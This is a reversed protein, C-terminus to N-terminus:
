QAVVPRTDAARALRHAHPDRILHLEQDFFRVARDTRGIYIIGTKRLDTRLVDRVQGLLSEDASDLAEDVLLWDPAQLLVRAFALGRQEDDNLERDWRRHDKLLPALADLGFRALAARCQADSYRGPDRPYALVECLTGPPLYPVRPVYVIDAHAPRIITGSGWPWLGALARFLLTESTGPEGSVLVHSGAPIDVRDEKLMTTGSPAAIKLKEIALRGAPGDALRIRSEQPHLAECDTVARRFSAVRLLTARWDAITSFNDVFWRLSSQVQNFAGVAMMLGGFTLNGAFYAPAAVLIPVVLTLWGYGATVWTLNTLGTVLKWMADLVHSLDRLIRREEDKEGGALTIADLHENVRMLSFRLESERQYREANRPILSGGVRWSLLSGAGAYAVAAWVMYGPISFDRGQWHFVFGGSLVWLVEIFVALLITAQLLQVGLDGSLETLHRADEHMRQDPNVGIPGANALRFARGPQLWQDVLDAVLGERLKLKLTESLWRQVVNLVLLAAVIIGFVGLQTFFEDLDRHALADYFPQNWQNLRIQGYATLAIVAFVGVGLAFLTNRVKSAWLAGIMMSLQPVLGTDPAADPTDPM